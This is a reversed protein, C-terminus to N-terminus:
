GEMLEEVSFLPDLEIDEEGFAAEMRSVAPSKHVAPSKRVSPSRPVAPTAQVIQPRPLLPVAAIPSSVPTAPRSPISIDFHTFDFDKFRAEVEGPLIKEWAELDAAEEDADPDDGELERMEQQTQSLARDYEEEAAASFTEWDPTAQLKEHAFEDMLERVRQGQSCATAGVKAMFQRGEDTKVWEKTIRKKLSLQKERVLVAEKLFRCKEHMQELSHHLGRNERNLSMIQDNQRILKANMERNKKKLDEINAQVVESGLAATIEFQMRINM